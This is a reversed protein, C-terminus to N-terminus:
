NTGLSVMEPPMYVSPIQYEVFDLTKCLFNDVKTVPEQILNFIPKIFEASSFLLSEASNIPWNLVRNQQQHFSM